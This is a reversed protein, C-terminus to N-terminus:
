VVYDTSLSEGVRDPYRNEHNSPAMYVKSGKLDKKESNRERDLRNGLRRACQRKYM